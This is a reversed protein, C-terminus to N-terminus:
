YKSNYYCCWNVGARSETTESASTFQFSDSDDDDLQHVQVQVEVGRPIQLLPAEMTGELIKVVEGMSPRKNEDDQFCLMGVMTARGVEEIDAENAIRADVVGIINGRQIQSAAWTPFYFRSDEVNLEINRRGSIIELLTMGFSFVDAKPTIPLGSIWEPALYGRTGRTTTLVRSFDRGVLKALGFDAVMPSFDGDLLINEPKIDCHIIRDRCEEHLYVLGRATGLAIHFRTKWDLVKGAEEGKYFLFSKLSGNPMYSYVLLRRSGQVCFGWLRVLNVHQIRGITSIEARFQNEGQASGELRKVAVLTDDPLSGKFVSGFAGSGLKHKFNQTAIRLEKYTFTKLSTPMDEEVSKKPQRRRRWLLFGVLLFALVVAVAAVTASLVISRAPAKSSGESTSHRLESAALRIFVSQGVSSDRMGFLEAFWLKCVPPDSDAFAFATCSCNNLCASRCGEQTPENNTLVAEKQPLYKMKEEFFDDATGETASCHLPTRRECGSSRWVHSENKSKTFGEVCGCVENPYCEGYAGCIDYASCQGGHTSWMSNWKNDEMLYYLDLRGNDGLVIRGVVNQELRFNFYISSPSNRVCSIQITKDGDLEHINTFYDTVWEGSSWFPVSNDYVMVFQTKGPSMDIGYSFVGIAPDVSSKRSTLKMGKWFKMGPLWTDGPHAFSEWVIESNNHGYGLMVFNGAETIVARSGNLGNDTSWVSLGKSDFLRLHGDSWFQLVGPMGGVPNDRNAVWVITKESIQAYWIGIYWNNTGKSSFFGLAFVGNKSMITQNGTLSNGLLLTDGSDVALSSCCHAAIIMTIALILYKMAMEIVM